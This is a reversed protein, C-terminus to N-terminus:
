KEMSDLAIKIIEACVRVDTESRHMDDTNLGIYEAVTSLKYDSLGDFLKKSIDLTDIYNYQATLGLRDAATELFRLDFNVNHGVILGDSLFEILQPIVTSEDPSDKVMDDTIHHIAISSSPIKIKPNVLTVFKETEIGNEYKIAALEIIRDKNHSLGTTEFDLVIFQKRCASSWKNTFLNVRKSQLSLPINGNQMQSGSKYFGIKYYATQGDCDYIFAKIPEGKKKWGNIMNQTQGRHVYGIDKDDLFIKIAHEDYPNNPEKVFRIEKGINLSIYKMISAYDSLGEYVSIENTYQYALPKGNVEEPLENFKPSVRDISTSANPVSASNPSFLAKVFSVLFIVIYKIALYPLKFCLWKVPIWWWGICLWWIFGRNDNKANKM